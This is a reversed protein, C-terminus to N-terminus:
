HTHRNCHPHVLTPSRVQSNRLQPQLGPQPRIGSLRRSSWHPVTSQPTAPSVCATICRQARRRSGFSCIAPSSAPTRSSTRSRYRQASQKWDGEVVMVPCVCPCSEIGRVVWGGVWGCVGAGVWVGAYVSVGVCVWVGVWRVGMWRVGACVGGCVCVDAVM